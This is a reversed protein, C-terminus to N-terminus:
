KNGKVRAVKVPPSDDGVREGGLKLDKQQWTFTDDNIRVLVNKVTVKRGDATVGANEFVWSNGHRTCTGEGLEGESGFLWNRLNGTRPDIGILQMGSVPKEDRRVKITGRIFSKNGFWEYTTDVDVDKRDARWTGILWALDALEADKGAWVRVIALLWRGDESVLMLSFRQSDAAGGDVSVSMSGEAVATDRSPFTLSGMELTIKRKPHDAFTKAYAKRIAERGRIPPSDESFVEAAATMHAVTADVNGSEFAKVFSAVAKRIATRDGPRSEEPVKADAAGPQGEPKATGRDGALGLRGFGVAGLTAGLALLLCWFLTSKM